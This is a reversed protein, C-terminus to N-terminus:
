SELRTDETGTIENTFIMVKQKLTNETQWIIHEVTRVRLVKQPSKSNPWLGPNLIDGKNISMLPVPSAFYMWVDRVSGPEYIELLFETKKINAM